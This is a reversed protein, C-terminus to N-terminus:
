LSGITGRGVDDPRNVPDAFVDISHVVRSKSGVLLSNIRDHPIEFDNAFGSTVQGFWDPFRNWFDIPPLDNSQSVNKYM